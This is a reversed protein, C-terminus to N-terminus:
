EVVTWDDALADSESPTWASYSDDPEKLMVVPEDSGIQEGGSLATAEDAPLKILFLGQASWRQRAVREGEDLAVQAEDFTLAAKAAPPDAPASQEDNNQETM